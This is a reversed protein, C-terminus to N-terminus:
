SCCKAVPKAAMITTAFTLIRLLQKKVPCFFFLQWSGFNPHTFLLQHAQFMDKKTNNYEKVRMVLAFVALSNTELKCAAVSLRLTCIRVEILVSVIM